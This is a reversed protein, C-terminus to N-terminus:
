KYRNETNKQKKPKKGYYKYYDREYTSEFRRPSLKRKINIRTVVVGGIFSAGMLASILIMQLENIQLGEDEEEEEDEITKVFGVDEFDINGFTDNVYFRIVLEGNNLSDWLTEDITGENGTFFIKQSWQIGNFIVYWTKDIPVDNISIEFEPPEYGSDSNSPEEITIHPGAYHNNVTVTISETDNLNDQEDEAMITITYEGDAVLTSDWTGSYYPETGSLPVNENYTTANTIEAWVDDVGSGIGDDVSANILVSSGSVYANNIPAIISVDPNEDDKIQIEFAIVNSYKGQSGAGEGAVQITLIETGSISTTNIRFTRTMPNTATTWAFQAYYDDGDDWEDVLNDEPIFPSTDPLQLGDSGTHWFAYGVYAGTTLGTATVELDFFGAKDILVENDTYNTSITIEFRTHGSGCDGISVNTQNYHSFALAFFSTSLIAIVILIKFFYKQGKM